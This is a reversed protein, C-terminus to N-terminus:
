SPRQQPNADLLSRIMVALEARRYPKALLPGPLMRADPNVVNVPYGSMFAVKMEPQKQAANRALEIGDTNGPMVVDTFLLDFAETQLLKTAENPSPARQVQYGLEQLWESALELLAPEDDVVLIREHGRPLEADGRKELPTEVVALAPLYLRVTTGRGPESALAAVGGSQRAFGYVAALGLGAGHGREKTTFFPEFARAAVEAPMGMGSDAIEVVVYPGPAVSADEAQGNDCRRLNVVLRGGSPMADAANATLSLIASQLASEDVQAVLSEANVTHLVQVSPGVARRVLPMMERVREAIDTRAPSLPQRRAVALLSKTLQGTRLAADLAVEIRQQAQANDQLQLALLDLTGVIIGLLNNFDHALGGTLAGIAEMKQFRLVQRETRKRASIDTGVALVQRLEGDPGAVPTFDMDFWMEAGAKSH